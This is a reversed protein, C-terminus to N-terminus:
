PGFDDLVINKRDVAYNELLQLVGKNLLPPGCVYFLCDNPSKIRKLQGMEFALHLFNTRLPDDIPWGKEIDEPLPESLVLHYKFNPFDKELQKFEVEYINDRLARAGYWLSVSRKTKQTRLLHMLHSRAFSAGAGGILFVLESEDDVMLADGYPGSFHIEDGPNLSFAYSSCFGWPITIPFKGELLPPLAIRITFKLRNGEAPYSAISFACAAKQKELPLHTFDIEHDFLGSKEWDALYKDWIWRRWLQTNTKFPPIHFRFYTGPLYSIDRDKVEVVLEKIFTAVNENSLVVATWERM